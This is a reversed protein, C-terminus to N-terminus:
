TTSERWCRCACLQLCCPATMHLWALAHREPPTTLGHVRALVQRCSSAPHLISHNFLLPSSLVSAADLNAHGHVASSRSQVGPAQWCDPFFAASGSASAKKYIDEPLDMRLLALWADSRCCVSLLQNTAAARRCRALCAASCNLMGPVAPRAAAVAAAHIAHGSFAEAPAAALCAAWGLRLWGAWRYMRHQAKRNAWKARQQGAAAEAVAAAAEAALRQRKRQRAGEGTNAAAVLGLEAAGCWSQLAAQEQEEEEGAAAAAAKAPAAEMGEPMPPMEALLDHLTRALDHPSVRGGDAAAAAETGAADAENDSAEDDSGAAGGSAGAGAGREATNRRAVSRQALKALSALTFYRVDALGAPTQLHSAACVLLSRAWVDM